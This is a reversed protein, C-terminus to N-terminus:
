FTKILITIAHLFSRRIISIVYFIRIVSVQYDWPPNDPGTGCGTPDSCAVYETYTDHCKVKDGYLLDASLFSIHCYKENGFFRM